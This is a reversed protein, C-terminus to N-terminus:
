CIWCAAEVLGHFGNSDLKGSGVELQGLADALEAKVAM